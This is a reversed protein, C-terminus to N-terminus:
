ESRRAFAIIEGINIPLPLERMRKPIVPAIRNYTRWILPNLTRLQKSLYDPTLVKYTPQIVVDKFGTQRLALELAKASFLYTHQYPQLMPWREGMVTRLFHQTNPTTIVLLGDPTLLQHMQKLFAFPELTHELIDFASIVDYTAHHIAGLQNVDGQIIRERAQPSAYSIATPSFEVGHADFGAELAVDIFYGCSCGVDLLRRGHALREVAPIRQRFTELKLDRANIYDTYLGDAYERDAYDLMAQLTIMPHQFILACEPCRFYSARQKSLCFKARSGCVPCVPKQQEIDVQDAVKSEGIQAMKNGNVGKM